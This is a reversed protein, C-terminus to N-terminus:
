GAAMTKTAAQRAVERTAAHEEQQLMKGALVWTAVIGSAILHEGDPTVKIKTTATEFKLEQILDVRRLYEEQLALLYIGSPDHGVVSYQYLIRLMELLIFYRTSASFPFMSQFGSAHQQLVDRCPVFKDFGPYSFLFLPIPSLDPAPPLQPLADSALPPPPPAGDFLNDNDLPPASAESLPPLSSRVTPMYRPSLIPRGSALALPVATLVASKPPATRIAGKAM